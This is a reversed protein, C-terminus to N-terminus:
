RGAAVAQVIEPGVSHAIRRGPAVVLFRAGDWPGFLLDRLLGPDGAHHRFRWGLAHACREAYERHSDDGAVRLDTYGATSYQSFAAREMDVLAEAEEPGFRATYEARLKAEREPGAVRRERNWGPSYWYTGPEDRMCAAYRDKSGLFLTLCDHARPVVLPCRRPALDVLAMGCLGYALVVAEVTEDAEARAIAEGLKTRLVAPQDHLGVDFFEQRVVNTAGQLLTVIEAELVRCAVLAIPTARPNSM